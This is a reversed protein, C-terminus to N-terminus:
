DKQKIIIIIKKSSHNAKIPWFASGPNGPEGYAMFKLNLMGLDDPNSSIFTDVYEHPSVERPQEQPSQGRDGIHELESGGEGGLFSAQVILIPDRLTPFSASIFYIKKQRKKEQHNVLQSQNWLTSSYSAYWKSPPITQHKYTLHTSSENNIAYTRKTEVNKPHARKWRVLSLLIGGDLTSGNIFDVLSVPGSELLM